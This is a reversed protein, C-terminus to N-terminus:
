FSILAKSVADIANVVEDRLGGCVLERSGGVFASSAGVICGADRAAGGIQAMASECAEGPTGVAPFSRLIRYDLSLIGSTGFFELNLTGNGSFESCSFQGTAVERGRPGNGSEQGHTSRPVMLGLGLLITIALVGSGFIAKRDM